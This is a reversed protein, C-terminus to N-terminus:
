EPLSLLEAGHSGVVMPPTFLLKLWCCPRFCHSPILRNTAQYSAKALRRQMAAKESRRIFRSMLFMLCLEALAYAPVREAVDTVGLLADPEHSVLNLLHQRLGHM